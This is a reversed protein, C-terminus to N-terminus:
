WSMHSQNNSFLRDFFKLIPLYFFYLTHKEHNNKKHDAHVDLEEETLEEKNGEVTAVKEKEHGFRQKFQSKVKVVQYLFFNRSFWEM